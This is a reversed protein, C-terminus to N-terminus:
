QIADIARQLQAETKHCITAISEASFPFMAAGVLAVFAILLSYEITDQGSEEFILARPSM